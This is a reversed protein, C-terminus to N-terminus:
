SNAAAMELQLKEAAAQSFVIREFQTRNMDKAAAQLEDLTMTELEKILAKELKPGVINPDEGKSEYKSLKKKKNSKLNTGNEINEQAIRRALAGESKFWMKMRWGLGRKKGDKASRATALTSVDAAKDSMGAAKSKVTALGGKLKDLTTKPEDSENLIGLIREHAEAIETTDGKDFTVGYSDKLAGSALWKTKKDGKLAATILADIAFSADKRFLNEASGETRGAFEQRAGKAQVAYVNDAILHGLSHVMQIGQVATKIATTAGFDAGGTAIQAIGLALKTIAFSTDALSKELMQFNRRGLRQLPIVLEPRHASRALYIDGLNSGYRMANPVTEALGGAVAIANSIVDVIPIVDALSALASESLSSAIKMASSVNSNLQQIQGLGAKIATGIDNYDVSKQDTLGQIMVVFDRIGVISDLVGTVMNSISEMGGGSREGASLTTKDHDNNGKKILTGITGTVKAVGKGASAATGIADGSGKPGASLGVRKEAIAYAAAELKSGVAPRKAVVKPDANKWVTEYAEQKADEIPVMLKLMEQVLRVEEVMLAEVKKSVLSGSSDGFAQQSSKATAVEGRTGLTQSMLKESRTERMPRIARLDPAARMWIMEYAQEEAAEPGLKAFKIRLEQEKELAEDFRHRLDDQATPDNGLQAKMQERQETGKQKEGKLRQEEIVESKKALQEATPQSKAGFLSWRQVAPSGANQQITHTLEHALLEQGEHSTASPASSSLFIDSGVTFAKAQIRDNLQRATGDDHIRVDSFDAGFGGEMTSRTQDDLPRGGGQAGRIAADTDADLVGGDAGVSSSTAKPQVRSSVTPVSIRADPARLALDSAAGASLDSTEGIGSGGGRRINRVVASAVRDAEQEHRDGVPGVKLKAQM